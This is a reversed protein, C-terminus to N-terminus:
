ATRDAKDGERAKAKGTVEAEEAGKEEENGSGGMKGWVRSIKQSLDKTEGTQLLRLSSNGNKQQQRSM